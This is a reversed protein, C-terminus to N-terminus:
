AAQQTTGALDFFDNPQVAGDTVDFIKLMMPGEPTRLGTEYRAVTTLICGLRDALEQQTLGANRRWEALKM